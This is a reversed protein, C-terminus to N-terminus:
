NDEQEYPENMIRRAITALIEAVAMARQQPTLFDQRDTISDDNVAPNDAAM